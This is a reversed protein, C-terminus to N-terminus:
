ASDREREAEHVTCGVAMQLLEGVSGDDAEDCIVIVLFVSFHGLSQPSSGTSGFKKRNFNGPPQENHSSNPKETIIHPRLRM